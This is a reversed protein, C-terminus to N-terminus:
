APTSPLAPPDPPPPASASETTAAAATSKPAKKRRDRRKRKETAEGEVPPDVPIDLADQFHAHRCKVCCVANTIRVIGDHLYEPIEIEEGAKDYFTPMAVDRYARQADEWLPIKLSGFRGLFLDKRRHVPPANTDSADVWHLSILLDCSLEFRYMEFRILGSARVKRHLSNPVVTCVRQSLLTPLKELGVFAVAHGIQASCGGSDEGALVWRDSKEQHKFQVDPQAEIGSTKLLELAEGPLRLGMGPGPEKDKQRKTTTVATEDAM